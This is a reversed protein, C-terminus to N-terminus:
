TYVWVTYGSGNIHNLFLSRFVIEYYYGTCLASYYAFKLYKFELVKADILSSAKTEIDNVQHRWSSAEYEHSLFKNCFDTLPSRRSWSAPQCVV